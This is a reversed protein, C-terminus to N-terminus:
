NTRSQAGSVRYKDIRRQVDGILGQMGSSRVIASFTNRYNSVLSVGEIVVDYARWRQEENLRLKYTVPIETGSSLISTDVIARDGYIREGDYRVSQDTYGEIKTRYVEELYQSFFEVFQQREAPTAKQWNSALVSQSMSQFDFNDNIIKGIRSWRSERDLTADRLINLVESVARQVTQTPTEAAAAAATLAVSLVLACARTSM